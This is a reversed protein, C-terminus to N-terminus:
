PTTYTFGAPLNFDTDFAKLMAELCSDFGNTQTAFAQIEIQLNNLAKIQAYEWDAPVEISEFLTLKAGPVQEGEFFIYLVHCDEGGINEIRQWIAYKSTGYINVSDCTGLIGAGPATIGGTLIKSTDILNLYGSPEYGLVDPAALALHDESKVIVKAAIYAKETGVNEIIPDKHVSQAPYLNGVETGYNIGSAVRTGGAKAVINGDANKEVEAETLTIKVDGVTFTNTAKKTDKLYALSAGAVAIVIMITALAVALIKKKM